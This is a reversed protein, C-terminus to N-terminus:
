FLKFLGRKKSVYMHACNQVMNLSRCVKAVDKERGNTGIGLVPGRKGEQEGIKYFFSM